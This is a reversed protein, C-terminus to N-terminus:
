RRAAVADAAHAHQRRGPEAVVFGVLGLARADLHAIREFLLPEDFGTQREEVSTQDGADLVKAARAQGTGRALGRRPAAHTHVDVHGGYRAPLRGHLRELDHGALRLLAHQGDDPGFVEVGDEIETSPPVHPGRDDAGDGGAAAQADEIARLAVDEGVNRRRRQVLVRGTVGARGARRGVEVDAPSIVRGTQRRRSVTPVVQQAEDGVLRPHPRLVVM